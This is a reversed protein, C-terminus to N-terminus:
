EEEQRRKEIAKRQKKELRRREERVAEDRQFHVRALNLLAAVTVFIPWPFYPDFGDDGLSGVTWITWVIASISLLGWLAERRDHRWSELARHDLEAPTLATSSPTRQPVLGDLPGVLAGLTRAQATATTREDLEQRDLRGDAFAEGLVGLVVERDADSARLGQAEPDRPDRTFSSWVQEAERM